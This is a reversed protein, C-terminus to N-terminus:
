SNKTMKFINAIINILWIIGFTVWFTLHPLSTFVACVAYNWLLMVLFAELCGFAFSLALYAICGFVFKM